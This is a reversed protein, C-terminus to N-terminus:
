QENQAELKAKAAQEELYARRAEQHKLNNKEVWSIGGAARHRKEVIITTIAAVISFVILGLNFAIRLRSRANDVENKPVWNPVDEMSKYKRKSFRYLAFRTVRGYVPVNNALDRVKALAESSNPDAVESKPTQSSNSNTVQSSMMRQCTRQVMARRSLTALAGSSSM